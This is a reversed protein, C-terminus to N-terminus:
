NNLREGSIEDFLAAATQTHLSRKVQQGTDGGSNQQYNALALADQLVASEQQLNEAASAPPQLLTDLTRRLEDTAGVNKLITTRVEGSLGHLYAGCLVVAMNAGEKRAINEAFRAVTTTTKISKFDTHYYRKVEVAVKDKLLDERSGLFDEPLTGLCQEAFQCYSACGFDMKPNVFRHDCGPCKRTTDDKYFEVLAGCQPCEVDYIADNNWYQMDQGPCKM